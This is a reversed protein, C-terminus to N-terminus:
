ETMEQADEYLLPDHEIIILRDHGKRVPHNNKKEVQITKILNSTGQTYDFLNKISM